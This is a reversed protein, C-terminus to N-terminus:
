FTWGAVATKVELTLNDSYGTLKRDFDDAFFDQSFLFKQKILM